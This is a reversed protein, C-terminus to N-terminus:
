DRQLKGSKTKIRVDKEKLLNLMKQVWDRYPKRNWNSTAGGGWAMRLVSYESNKIQEHLTKIGKAKILNEILENFKTTKTPRKYILIVVVGRLDWSKTKIASIKLLDSFVGRLGSAGKTLKLEIATYVDNRFNKEKFRIDLFCNTNGDKSKPKKVGMDYPYPVETESRGISEKNLALALEYQLWKEWGFNGSQSFYDIYEKKKKFIEFLSDDITELNTM